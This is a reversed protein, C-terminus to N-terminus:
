RIRALGFQKRTVSATSSGPSTPVRMSFTATSPAWTGLDTRGNGDWDGTVPLDTPAGFTVSTAAPGIPRTRLTFKKTSPDFVGIDTLGDGNWDGTVPLSGVSGMRFVRIDKASVRMRFRTKSPRWVGVETTGNGDWDGTIPLDSRFGFPLTKTSGDSRRMVFDTSDSTRVGVDTSGNGDWDGLLPTDSSFGLVIREPKKEPRYLRFIGTGSGRRFIAVEDSGKGDFNGALPVDPCNRSALTTGFAYSSQHFTAKQVSGGLREEFHLHPGTSGGSTGVLGLITGQDVRQGTTVYQALLHAYLSSYGDAHDVIIYKGYSSSGTDAVRNVVGPATSVALDGIDDPRNFDVSYYSPSHSSYTAGMWEQGCPFPAEYDPAPSAVAPAVTLVGLLLVAPCVYAVSRTLRM